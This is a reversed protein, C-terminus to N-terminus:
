QQENLAKNSMPVAYKIVILAVKNLFFYELLSDWLEIM